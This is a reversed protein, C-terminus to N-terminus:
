VRKKRWRLKKLRDFHHDFGTGTTAGRGDCLVLRFADAQSACLASKPKPM